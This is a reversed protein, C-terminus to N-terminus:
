MGRSMARRINPDDPRLARARQLHRRADAHRGEQHYIESLAAHAEFLNPDTILAQNICEVAKRVNGMRLYSAGLNQHAKAYQPNVRVSQEFTEAAKQFDGDALFCNGLNYHAQWHLRDCETAQQYHDKARTNDHQRHFALGALYHTEADDPLNKLAELALRDAEEFKGAWGLVQSLKRLALAHDRLNLGGEVRDAIEQRAAQNWAVGPNLVQRDILEDVLLRGLLKNGEITPHVHDLFQEAGPVGGENHSELVASFPILRCGRESAVNILTQQISSLARLPCVDEDRARVFAAMAQDRQETAWLVRGREYHLHAFRDDIEIARDLLALAAQTEGSTMATLSQTVLEHIRRFEDESLDSRHQSKFPSCDKLNSAPDVFIVDAGASAAIDVIRHLSEEFHVVVQTQFVENREYSQPGVTRDLIAEIDSSMTTANERHLTQSTAITDCLRRATSYVRTRSLLSGINRILEPTAHINRYTRHELFENHGTYCIFLDPEYDVLEEMLRAVRYSAYSVGGANIVEYRGKPDAAASFERLWGAFSTTDDYPRGFTTSGGLCFIRTTGTEKPQSFSQKNFLNLKNRSTTFRVTGDSQQQEEFLPSWAAFGVYSDQEYFIPQVGAFLLVAEAVVLSAITATLSFLLKKWLLLPRGRRQIEERIAM